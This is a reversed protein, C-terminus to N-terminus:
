AVTHGGSAGGSGLAKCGREATDEGRGDHLKQGAIGDVAVKETVKPSNIIKVVADNLKRVIDPPTKGHAAILALGELM